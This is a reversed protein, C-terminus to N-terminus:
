ALMNFVVHLCKYVFEIVFTVLRDGRQFFAGKLDWERMASASM